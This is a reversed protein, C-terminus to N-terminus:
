QRSTVNGFSKHHWSTWRKTVQRLKRYMEETFSEKERGTMLNEIEKGFESCQDCMWMERAPQSMAKLDEYQVFSVFSLNLISIDEFYINDIISYATIPM